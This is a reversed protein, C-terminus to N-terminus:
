ECGKTPHRRGLTYAIFLIIIFEDSLMVSDSLDSGDTDGRPRKAPPFSHLPTTHPTTNDRSSLPLKYSGASDKSPLSPVCSQMSESGASCQMDASSNQVNYLAYYM